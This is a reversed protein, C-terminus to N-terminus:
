GMLSDHKGENIEKLLEKTNMGNVTVGLSTCSGIVEKVRDKLDKGLSSGEKKKAIEVIKELSIDGPTEEKTKRGKEIGAAKKILESTAPSGIEIEFSKTDTDVIIKVPIKMGQFDKTMENIKAVVQGANIGMPGLAPGIPPGASAKGGEVMANIIKEM